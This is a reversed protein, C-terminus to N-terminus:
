KNANDPERDSERRCSCGSQMQAGFRCAINAGHDSRTAVPSRAHIVLARTALEPTRARARDTIPILLFGAAGGYRACLV